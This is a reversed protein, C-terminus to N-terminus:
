DHHPILCLFRLAEAGTNAFHHPEDPAVLVVTGPGIPQAGDDGHIEGGGALVFVEHEWPHSHHPTRGGPAVEFERMAFNPAGMARTVLWRVGVGVAGATQVEEREITRHDHVLM